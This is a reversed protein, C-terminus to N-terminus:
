IFCSSPTKTLFAQPSHLNEKEIHATDFTVKSTVAPIKQAQLQLDSDRIREKDRV